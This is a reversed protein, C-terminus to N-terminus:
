NVLSKIQEGFSIYRDLYLICKDQTYQIKIIEINDFAYEFNRIKITDWPKITEIPYQRNVVITTEKKPDKRANVYNQAYLDLATQWYIRTQETYYKTWYTAVSVADSYSSNQILDASVMYVTNVMEQMDEKIEISEVDKRNTFYHTPTTPKQFFFVTGNGDVFWKRNISECITTICQAITWNVTWTWMNPWDPITTIDFNLWAIWTIMERIIQGAPKNAYAKGIGKETLVSAIGLCSLEIYQRSTTQTRWIKVVYWLYLDAWNKNNDDYKVIKIINWLNYDTNTIEKWIQITTNGLWWNVNWTFTIDWLILDGKITELLTTFTSDYVKILLM